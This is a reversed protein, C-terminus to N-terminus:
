KQYSKEVARQVANMIVRSSNTAGSVADVKTSQHAIIREIIPREAKKGMLQWHEVIEIHVIKQDQITVRVVAKNPGGKYSAEYIGDVLKAPDLPAGMVPTHACGSLAINGMLFVATAWPLFCLTHYRIGFGENDEEVMINKNELLSM